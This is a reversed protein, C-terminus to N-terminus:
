GLLSRALEFADRFDLYLPKDAEIMKRFLGSEVKYKIAGIALAGIGIAKGDLAVGNDQVGIGEIGAPPVANVDAAVKLGSAQKLQAKSAVQVGAKGAALLVEADKLAAVKLTDSSGDAYALDVKFRGKANEALQKVRTPGDYGVLTTRAGEKAAIVAASFGVVGTAGFVVVKSGSLGTSFKEKLAKEVCAVMAAATTFSGAPDAFVSAAFPPVMSKRAAELMDLALIANRGGIFIGTRKAGKPGRSFIADQVLGTVEGLEVSTYPVIANFGADLAMNVDFPSVHRLPSLMHLIFPAEMEKRGARADAVAM